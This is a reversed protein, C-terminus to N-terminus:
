LFKKLCINIFFWNLNISSNKLIVYINKLVLIKINNLEMIFVVVYLIQTYITAVLDLIEPTGFMIM